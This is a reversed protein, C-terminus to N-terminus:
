NLINILQALVTHQHQDYMGILAILKKSVPDTAGMQGLLRYVREVKQPLTRLLHARSLAINREFHALSSQDSHIARENQAKASATTPSQQTKQLLMQRFRDRENLYHTNRAVALKQDNLLRGVEQVRPSSAGFAGGSRAVQVLPILVFGLLGALLLWRVRERVLPLFGRLARMPEGEKGV